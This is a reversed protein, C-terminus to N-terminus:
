CMYPGGDDLPTFSGARSFRNGLLPNIQWPASGGFQRANLARSHLMTTQVLCMDHTASPAGSFV